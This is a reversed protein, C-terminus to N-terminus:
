RSSASSCPAVYTPPAAVHRGMRAAWRGRRQGRASDRPRTAGVSHSAPAVCRRRQRKGDLCPLVDVDKHVKAVPAERERWGRPGVRGVAVVKGDRVAVANSPGGSVSAFEYVVTSYRERFRAAIICAILVSVTAAAIAFYAKKYAM